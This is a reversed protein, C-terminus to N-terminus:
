FFSFLYFLYPFPSRNNCTTDPSAAPIACLPSFAFYPAPAPPETNPAHSSSTPVAEPVACRQCLPSPALKFRYLYANLGIHGTRLQTLVSCQPRSLNTYMRELAKSPTANDFASVRAHCPSTKWEEHWQSAFAKTETAISAARSIPLTV